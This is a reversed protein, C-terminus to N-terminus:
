VTRDIKLKIAPGILNITMVKILKMFAFAENALISCKKPYSSFFSNPKSVSALYSSVPYISNSSQLNLQVLSATM